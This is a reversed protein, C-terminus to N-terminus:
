SKSDHAEQRTPSSVRVKRPKYPAGKRRKANREDHWKWKAQTCTDCTCKAKMWAYMTGHTFGSNEAATKDRHHDKCLLQCKDLEAKVEPNNLTMKVNISFSKLSPDIHDFELNEVTGCVVCKGGLYDLMPKRRKLHYYERHYEKSMKPM